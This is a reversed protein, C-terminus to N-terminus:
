SRYPGESSVVKLVQASRRGPAAGVYWAVLQRSGGAGERALVVAERVDPHEALRAEIEGPEIRFGRLKVQRDTRGLFELEGSALWRVRDGTRYLRAGPGAAFPDPVFREATLEPRGLYDRAVSRGGLCLEGPVGVPAMSGGPELVYMAANGLPCMTTVVAITTAPM